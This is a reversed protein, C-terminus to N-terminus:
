LISSGKFKHQKSNIKRSETAQHREDTKSVKTMIEKIIVRAEFKSEQGKPVWIVVRTGDRKWVQKTRRKRIKGGRNKGEKRREEQIKSYKGSWKMKLVAELIRKKATECVFFIFLYFLYFERKFHLYFELLNTKLFRWHWRSQGEDVHMLCNSYTM